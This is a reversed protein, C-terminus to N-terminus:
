NVFVPGAGAERRLPIDFYDDPKAVWVTGHVTLIRGRRGGDVIQKVAQIMPNHRRHHGVLLQIGAKEGAGVLAAAAAV